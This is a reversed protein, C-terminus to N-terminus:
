PFIVRFAAGGGPLTALPELRPTGNAGDLLPVAALEASGASLVAYRPHSTIFLARLDAAAQELPTGALYEDPSLIHVPVVLRGTYLHVFPEGDCAVVDGPETNANVWEAIPALLQANRVAPRDWWHRQVGQISYMANGGISLIGVACALAASVRVGAAAHPTEGLRWCEIAGSALLLGALPWVAWLFREPAYPWPLVLAAYGVLFLLAVRARRRSRIMAVAVLVITITVLLPRLPLPGAPFLVIGLSRYLSRVNQRVITTAFGIGRERYLTVVWGLYPGYNGRLPVALEATHASVWLQWPLMVVLAGITAVGADRWRKALLLAAILAPALAIGLSRVLALGGAALGALASARWGPQAVARDAAALAAFLVVLFLPESFLVNTIVLVPLAAACIITTVVAAAPPVSLRRIAYACAMAAAIAVLVPNIFKLAAVNQPFEPLAMWVLALLAPWAPPFHVAPPAGVLHIFRYGTGAALSKATILYVGDDWFVGVPTPTVTVIAIVLVALGVVYPWWAARWRGVLRLAADSV